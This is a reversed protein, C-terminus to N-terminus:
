TRRLRQFGFMTLGQFIVLGAFACVLAGNPIEVLVLVIRARDARRTTVQPVDLLRL